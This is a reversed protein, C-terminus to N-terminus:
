CFFWCSEKEKSESINNEQNGKKLLEKKCFPEEKIRSGNQFRKLFYKEESLKKSCKEETKFCEYYDNYYYYTGNPNNYILPIMICFIYPAM